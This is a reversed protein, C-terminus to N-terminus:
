RVMVNGNEIDMLEAFEPRYACWGASTEFSESVDWALSIRDPPNGKGLDLARFGRIIGLEDIETADTTPGAFWAEDGVVVLCEVTGHYNGGSSLGVQWNGNTTGDAFTNAAFTFTRYTGGPWRFNGSGSASATMRDCSWEVVYGRQPHDESDMIDNWTGLPLSVGNYAGAFELVTEDGPADNPEGNAWNTYVFPEGASWAWGLEPSGPPNGEPQFGGLFYSDPYADPFTAVVWDNEEASTLTALHPVCGRYSGLAAAEAQAESYYIEGVSGGEPVPAAVAYYYNGTGSFFVPQIGLKGAASLAPGDARQPEVV